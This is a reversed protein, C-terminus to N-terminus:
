KAWGCSEISRVADASCPIIEIATLEHGSPIPESVRSWGKSAPELGFQSLENLSNAGRWRWIRRSGELTVEKGDKAVLYGFHVGASFTRIIVPKPKSVKKASM